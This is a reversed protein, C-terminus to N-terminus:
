QWQFYPGEQVAEIFANGVLDTLAVKVGSIDPSEGEVVFIPHIPFMHAIKFLAKRAEDFGSTVYTTGCQKCVKSPEVGDAAQRM